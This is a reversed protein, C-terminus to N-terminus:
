RALHALSFQPFDISFQSFQTPLHTSKWSSLCDPLRCRRGVCYRSKTAMRATRFFLIEAYIVLYTYCTCMWQTGPVARALRLSISGSVFCLFCHSIDITKPGVKPVNRAGSHRSKEIFVLSCSWVWCINAFLVFRRYPFM